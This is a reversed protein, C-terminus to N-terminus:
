FDRKQSSKRVWKLINQEPTINELRKIRKRVPTKIRTDGTKRGEMLAEFANLVTVKNSDANETADVKVNAEFHKVLESVKKPKITQCEKKTNKIESENKGNKGISSLKKKLKPSSKPSFLKSKPSLVKIQKRTCQVKKGNTSVIRKSSSVKKLYLHREERDFNSPNSVFSNSDIESSVNPKNSADVDETEGM